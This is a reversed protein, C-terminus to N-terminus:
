DSDELDIIIDDNEISDEADFANANTEEKIKGQNKAIYLLLRIGKEIQNNALDSFNKLNKKKSISRYLSKPRLPESFKLAYLDLEKWELSESEVPIFLTIVLANIKKRIIGADRPNLIFVLDNSNIRNIDETYVIEKGM